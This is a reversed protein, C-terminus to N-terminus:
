KPTLKHDEELADLLTKTRSSFFMSSAEPFLRKLKVAADFPQINNESIERKLESLVAIKTQKIQKYPYNIIYTSERQLTDVLEDIQTLIKTRAVPLAQHTYKFVAELYQEIGARSIVGRPAYDHHPQCKTGAHRTLIFDTAREIVNSNIAPDSMVAAYPEYETTIYENILEAFPMVETNSTRLWEYASATRGEFCLGSSIKM